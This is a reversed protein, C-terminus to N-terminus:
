DEVIDVSLIMTSYGGCYYGRECIAKRCLDIEEDDEDFEDENQAYEILADIASEIDNYEDIIHEEDAGWAYKAIYKM